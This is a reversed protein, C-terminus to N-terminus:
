YPLGRATHLALLMSSFCGDDIPTHGGLLRHHRVDTVRSM